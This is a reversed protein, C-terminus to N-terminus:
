RDSNANHDLDFFPADDQGDLALQDQRRRAARIGFVTWPGRFVDEIEEVSLGAIEPVLIYVYLLAAFCWSAFFVFAGWDHTHSLLSPLAFTM